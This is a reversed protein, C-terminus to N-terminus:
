ESPYVTSDWWPRLKSINFLLSMVKGVSTRRTLARTKGTTMYPHSLQVMFLSLLSSNISEYQPAPSSEQSDWQLTIVDIQGLPFWAQINMPYVSASAGISQGGSAFLWSMPFSGWAPFSQPCSSFPVASSSITQDCQRSLPCSNSYLVPSVPMSCDTPDCLTRCSQSVSCCCCHYVFHWLLIDNFIIPYARMGELVQFLLM